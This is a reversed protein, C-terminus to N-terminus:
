REKRPVARRFVDLILMDWPHRLGCNPMVSCTASVFFFRSRLGLQADMAAQRRSDM